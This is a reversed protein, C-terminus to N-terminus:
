KQTSFMSVTDWSVQKRIMAIDSAMEKGKSTRSSLVQRELDKMSSM